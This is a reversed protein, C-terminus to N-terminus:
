GLSRINCGKLTRYKFIKANLNLIVIQWEGWKHKAM